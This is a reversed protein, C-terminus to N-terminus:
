SKVQGDALTLTSLNVDKKSIQFGSSYDNAEYM